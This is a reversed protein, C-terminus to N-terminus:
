WLQFVACTKPLRGPNPIVVILGWCVCSLARLQRNKTRSASSRAQWHIGIERLSFTRFTSYAFENSQYKISSDSVENIRITCRSLTSVRGHFPELPQHRITWSLPIGQSAVPELMAWVSSKSSILKAKSQRLSTYRTLRLHSRKLLSGWMTSLMSLQGIMSFLCSNLSLRVHVIKNFQRPRLFHPQRKRYRWVLSWRTRKWTRWHIGSKIQNGLDIPLTAVQGETNQPNRTVM